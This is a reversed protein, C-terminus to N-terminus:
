PQWTLESFHGHNYERERHMCKLKIPQMPALVYRIKELDWQGVVGNFYNKISIESRGVLLKKIRAHCIVAFLIKFFFTM